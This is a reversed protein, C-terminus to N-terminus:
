TVLYPELDCPPGCGVFVYRREQEFIKIEPKGETKAEGRVKRFVSKIMGKVLIGDADCVQSQRSRSRTVPCTKPVSSPGFARVARLNRRIVRLATLNLPLDGHIHTYM